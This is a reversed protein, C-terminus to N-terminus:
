NLSLRKFIKLDFNNLVFLKKPTQILINQGDRNFNISIINEDLSIIKKSELNRKDMVILQNTTLTFFAYNSQPHTRGWLGPVSIPISNILQWNETDFILIANINKQTTALVQRGNYAWLLASDLNLGPHDELTFLTRRIDVDVIQGVGQANNGMLTILDPGFRFDMLNEQVSLRRVPFPKSKVLDGSEQQYSHEWGSFGPPPDDAYSIEWAQPIDNLAIAFTELVANTHIANVRSVHGFGDDVSLLKLAKLNKADLIVISNPQYNGVALYRNDHSLAMSRSKIAVRVKATFTHSQLEYAAIWGEALAFYIFRKDSSIIPEAIIEGPIPITKAIMLTDSDVLWAKKATPNSLLVLNDTKEKNLTNNIPALVQHSSQVQAITWDKAGVGTILILTAIFVYMIKLGYLKSM